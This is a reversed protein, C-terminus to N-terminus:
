FVRRTKLTQNFCMVQRDKMHYLFSGGYTKQDLPWGITHLVAGPKHKSEDIEWVQDFWDFLLDLFILHTFVTQNSKMYAMLGLFNGESFGDIVIM